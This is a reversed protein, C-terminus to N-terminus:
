SEERLAAIVQLIADAEVELAVRAARLRAQEAEADQIERAAAREEDEAMVLAAEAEQTAQEAAALDRQLKPLAAILRELTSM